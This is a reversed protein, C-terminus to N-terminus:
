GRAALGELAEAAARPGGAAQFQARVRAAAARYTADQVVALVADRLEQATVRNFRVRIAAGAAVAREAYFSQEHAIPAVVAPLGHLFAECVTTGAHTVVADIHRYLALIPVWECVLFNGSAQPVQARTSVIVQLPADALAEALTRLFREGREAFLTGLTVLVRPLPLLRDWAFAEDERRGSLAPGVFRFHEPFSREPAAFERTVYLLVLERSCDPDPMPALQARRQAQEFQAAVWRRVQPYADLADTLLAASPASTAFPVKARRAGLAGALAQQDAVVADPAFRAIADDVAPLMAEALPVIVQEILVKYGALWPAGTAARLHEVADDDIASEIAFCTADRPLLGRVAAYTVWAVDHGRSRLESAISVTPNVHAVFPPVVFLFRSM